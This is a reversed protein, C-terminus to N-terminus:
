TANSIQDKLYKICEDCILCRAIRENESMYEDLPQPQNQHSVRGRVKNVLKLLTSIRRIDFQLEKPTNKSRKDLIFRCSGFNMWDLLDKKEHQIPEERNRDRIAQDYATPFFQKLATEDIKTRILNVMSNEVIRIKERIAAVSYSDEKSYNENNKRVLEHLDKTMTGDIEFKIIECKIASEFDNQLQYIKSIISLNELETTTDYSLGSLQTSLNELYPDSCLHNNLFFLYNLVQNAFKKNKKIEEDTIKDTLFQFEYFFSNIEENVEFSALNLPIMLYEDDNEHLRECLHISQDKNRPVVYFGNPFEHREYYVDEGCYTMCKM